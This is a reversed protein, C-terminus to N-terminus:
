PSGRDNGGGEADSASAQGAVESLMVLEEISLVHDVSLIIVFGQDTKGMGAIFDTRIRAGFAPAVEIDERAIELVESVSDVVIGIDQRGQAAEAEVEVIVICSRKGPINAEGSFRVSLDIVPVVSGRLNIVGRIFDPMMPVPTVRGYELIEKVRLIGIAFLEDRLTFTLYQDDQAAAALTVDEAVGSGATRESNVPLTM